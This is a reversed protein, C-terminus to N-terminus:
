MDEITIELPATMDAKDLELGLEDDFDKGLDIIVEDEAVTAPLMAFLLALITMTSIWKLSRM